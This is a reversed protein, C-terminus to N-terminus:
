YASDFGNRSELDPRPRPRKPIGNPRGTAYINTQVNGEVREPKRAGSIDWLERLAQIGLATEKAPPSMMSIDKSPSSFVGFTKQFFKLLPM